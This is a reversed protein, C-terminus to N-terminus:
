LGPIVNVDTEVFKYDVPLSHGDAFNVDGKQNHRITLTDDFPKFRGDNLIKPRSPPADGGTPEEVLMVKTAPNRASTLKFPQFIGNGDFPSALGGTVTLVQGFVAGDYSILSYSGPYSSSRAAREPDMPCRFLNTPNVMGLIKVVPSESLPHAPDGQYYIWDEQHWGSGGSAWGPMIDNSDTVYLMFGLGLQKLNNLCQSQQAKQKARALAPLLMAALIAIIAIVVLLEILTFARGIAKSRTLQKKTM